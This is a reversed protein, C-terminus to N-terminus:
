NTTISNTTSYNFSIPKESLAFSTPSISRRISFVVGEISSTHLRALRAEVMQHSGNQSRMRFVTTAAKQLGELVGYYSSYPWIIDESHVCKFFNWGVMENREYGLISKVADNQDTIVGGRDVVTIMDPISNLLDHM